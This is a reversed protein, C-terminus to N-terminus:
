WKDNKNQGGNQCPKPVVSRQNSFHPFQQPWQESVTQADNNLGGNFGNLFSLELRDAFVIGVSLLITTSVPTVFLANFLAGGLKM